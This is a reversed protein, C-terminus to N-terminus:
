DSPKLVGDLQKLVLSLTFHSASLTTAPSRVTPRNEVSRDTPHLRISFMHALAIKDPVRVELEQSDLIRCRGDRGGTTHFGPVPRSLVCIPLPSKSFPSSQTFVPHTELGAGVQPTVSDDRLSPTATVIPASTALTAITRAQRSPELKPVGNCDLCHNPLASASAANLWGNSKAIRPCYFPPLYKSVERGVQARRRGV